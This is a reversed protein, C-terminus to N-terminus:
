YVFEFNLFHLVILLRIGIELQLIWFSTNYAFLPSELYAKRDSRDTKEDYICVPPPKVEHVGRLISKFIQNNFHLLVRFFLPGRNESVGLYGRLLIQFSRHKEYRWIDICIRVQHLGQFKKQGPLFDCFFGLFKTM